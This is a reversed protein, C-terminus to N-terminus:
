GWIMRIPVLGIGLSEISAGLTGPEPEDAAPPDRTAL